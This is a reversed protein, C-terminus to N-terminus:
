PRLLSRTKTGTKKSQVVYTVPAKLQHELIAKVQDYIHVYFNLDGHGQSFILFM